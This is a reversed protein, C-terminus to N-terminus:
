LPAATILFSPLSSYASKIDAISPSQIVSEAKMYNYEPLIAWIRGVAGSKRQYLVDKGTMPARVLCQRM